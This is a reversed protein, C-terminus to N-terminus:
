AFTDTDTALYCSAYFPAVGRTAGRCSLSSAVAVQQPHLQLLVSEWRSHAAEDV